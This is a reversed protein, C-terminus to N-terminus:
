HKGCTCVPRHFGSKISWYHNVMKIVEEARLLQVPVYEPQKTGTIRLYAVPNISYGHSALILAYVSLQVQDSLFVKNYGRNKTDVIVYHGDALEFLQDIRGHLAVPHQTSINQENMVCRAGNFLAPLNDNFENLSTNNRKRVRAILFVFVVSLIIILKIAFNEM